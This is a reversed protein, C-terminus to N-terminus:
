TSSCRGPGRCPQRHLRDARPVAAPQDHPLVAGIGSIGFYLEFHRYGNWALTGVRDGPEIGLRTLANALAQGAARRRAYTYRHIPGEVTRSM